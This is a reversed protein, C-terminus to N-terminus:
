ALVQEAAYRAASQQARLHRGVQEVTDVWVDNQAALSALLSELVTVETAYPQQGNAITHSVLLLWYGTNRAEDVLALLESLPRNDMRSAPVRALDCRLPAALYEDNYGRGVVFREAVLPVYSRCERGRGVFTSGCPYAFTAPPRGMATELVRQADDIETEMDGLTMSELARPAGPEITWPFNTSCSHSRTHNGLEHGRAQAAAWPDVLTRRSESTLRERMHTTLYFTARLGYADLPPVAHRLQSDLGDDFCLSVACTKGDPWPRIM